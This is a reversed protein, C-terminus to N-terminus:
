RLIAAHHDSFMELVDLMHEYEEYNLLVAKPHGDNTITFKKFREGVEKILADFLVKAQIITIDKM